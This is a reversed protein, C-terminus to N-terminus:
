ELRESLERSLVSALTVLVVSFESLSNDSTRQLLKLVMTHAHTHKYTHSAVM